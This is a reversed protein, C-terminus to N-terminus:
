KLKKENKSSEVPALQYVPMSKDSSGGLSKYAYNTGTNRAKSSSIWYSQPHEGSALSIYNNDLSKQGGLNQNVIFIVEQVRLYYIM